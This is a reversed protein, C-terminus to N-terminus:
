NNVDWRSTEASTCGAQGRDREWGHHQRGTGTPSAAFVFGLSPASGRRAAGDLSPLLGSCGRSHMGLTSGGSGM